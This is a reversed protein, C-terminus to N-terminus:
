FGIDLYNIFTGEFKEYKTTSRQTEIIKLFDHKAM